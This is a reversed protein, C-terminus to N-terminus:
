IIPSWARTPPLSPCPKASASPECPTPSSSKTCPIQPTTPLLSDRSHILLFMKTELTFDVSRSFFHIITGDPEAGSERAM